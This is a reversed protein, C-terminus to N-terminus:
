ECAVAAELALKGMGVKYCHEFEPCRRCDDWGKLDVDVKRDSRSVGGATDLEYWFARGSVREDPWYHLTDPFMRGYCDKHNNVSM